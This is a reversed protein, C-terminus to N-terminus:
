MLCTWSLVVPRWKYVSVPTSVDHTWRLVVPRCKYVSVPTSVDSLIKVVSTLLYTLLRTVHESQDRTENNWSGRTGSNSIIKFTFLTSGECHYGVYAFPCVCQYGNVHEVCTGGHLCPKSTCEDIEVCLLCVWKCEGPPVALRCSVNRWYTTERRRQQEGECWMRGLHGAKQRDLAISHMSM